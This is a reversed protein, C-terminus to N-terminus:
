KVVEFKVTTRKEGTSLLVTYTGNALGAANLDIQHSGAQQEEHLLQQVIRGQQNYVLILVNASKDLAYSLESLGSVPNPFVQAELEVQEYAEQKSISFDSLQRRWIADQFLGAFVYDPSFAFGQVSHNPEPDLGTNATAFSSGHNNSFFIGESNGVFVNANLAGIAFAGTGAPIGPGVSQWTTGNNNSVYSNSFTGAYFHDIGDSAICTWDEFSLSFVQTWTVGSNTSRYIKSSSTTFEVAACAVSGNAAVGMGINSASGLNSANWTLGDNTSYYMGQDTAVIINASSLALGSVCLYGTGGQSPLGSTIHTWTVGNDTSRYLGFGCTGALIINGKKVISFINGNSLTDNNNTTGIKSWNNGNDESEYVGDSHTGSLLTTGSYTIANDITSAPSFGSLTYNWHKGKDSSYGVGIESYSLLFNPGSKNFETNFRFGPRLGQANVTTWTTGFNTTFYIKQASGAYIRKGSRVLGSISINDNIVIIPGWSQGSNFSRFVGQLTNIMVSDQKVIFNANSSFIFPSSGPIFWSNGNDNSYFILNDAFALLNPPAFALAYISSSGLAGGNADTWTNGHDASKFLGTGITGAFLFGNARAFSYIFKGTMGNNAATWTLGNNSSRYPGNNTGAYLYLNDAILSFVDMNELGGNSPAWTIGNDMSKFVGKASTGAFLTTGKQYFANVTMGAPGATQTWQSFAAPATALLLFALVFNKFFTPTKMIFPKLFFKAACM